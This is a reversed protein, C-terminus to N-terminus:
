ISEQRGPPEISDWLANFLLMQTAYIGEDEIILGHPTDHRGVSIMAVKGAYILTYTPVGEKKTLWRREDKGRMEGGPGIAIARMAIKRKIREETFNPFGKKHYLYPRITSSSYAAYEKVPLRAVSDLADELITRIGAYDEYYKVAPRSRGALTLTRLQPIAAELHKTAEEIEQQRRRLINSLAAPDEAVFHQHKEKHYYSVLGYTQLQKLVEHTTGRNIGAKDAITRIASPGLALLAMYVSVEKSSLGLSELVLAIPEM